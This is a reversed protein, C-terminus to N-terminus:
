TGSAAFLALAVVVGVAGGALAYAWAMLDPPGLPEDVPVHAHGADHESGHGAGHAADAPHHAVDTESM